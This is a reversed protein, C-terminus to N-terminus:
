HAQSFASYKGLLTGAIPLYIVPITHSTQSTALPLSYSILRPLRTHHDTGRPVGLAQYRPQHVDICWRRNFEEASGEPKLFSSAERGTAVDNVRFDRQIPFGQRLRTEGHPHAFGVLAQHRRSQAIRSRPRRQDTDVSRASRAAARGWATIHSLM